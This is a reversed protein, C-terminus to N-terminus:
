LKAQADEVKQSASSWVTSLATDLYIYSRGMIDDPTVNYTSVLLAGYTSSASFFSNSEDSEIYYNWVNYAFEYHKYAQDLDQYVLHEEAGPQRGLKDLAVKLGRVEAGYDRYSMGVDLASDVAAFQDLADEIEPILAEYAEIGENIDSLQAQINDAETSLAAISLLPVKPAAGLINAAEQLNEQDTKLVQIDGPNEAKGVDKILDQAQAIASSQASRIWFTLGGLSLLAVALVSSAVVSVWLVIRNNAQSPVVAVRSPTVKTIQSKQVPNVITSAVIIAESEDVEPEIYTSLKFEEAWDPLDSGVQRGHVRVTKITQIALGEIGKKTFSVLAQQPPVEASELFINLRDGKAFAKVEIGKPKLSHSMLAAIAKPNGQKATAVVDSQIASM